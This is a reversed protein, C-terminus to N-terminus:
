PRVQRPAGSSDRASGREPAPAPIGAAAGRASADAAASPATLTAALIEVCLAALDLGIARAAIPVLSHATMGPATNCEIFRPEGDADLIFDVRGWGRCGLTEFAELALAGLRELLPAPLDAPCVYETDEAVYKAHYDYFEGAARLAVPPLALEGLIGVTVERGPLRRELLVPGHRRAAEFAAPLANESDVTSVGISSGESVPKAVLPTGLERAAAWAEDLTEVLRAEAIPVGALACLSRARWKDMALASGLVGSGTYPLGALDLAGQVTGDEGGRGHLILFARAFGGDALTRVIDRDADLAHADVGAALLAGLVQRGSMLSVEREASWGGMVVAVRGFRARMAPDVRSAREGRAPTAIGHVPEAM